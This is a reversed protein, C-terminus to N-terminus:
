LLVDGVSRRPTPPVESGYGMRLVLQPFDTRGFIDRLNTRLTAVEIPQSFFSAWVGAVRAYLLIRELAQGAALWDFWTDTFTWLVALVPSGAALHHGAGAEENDMFTRIKLPGLYSAMDGKGFAYAPVGDRSQRDAPRTWTAIEQRFRENAWLLHDGTAILSAVAYRAEEGRVIQFSTEERRAIGELATLLSLPVARDKFLQRNTRRQVIARFLRQEEETAIGGKELSVRALIGRKEPETPLEVITMYGFHRAAILFNALAAGCSITMERNDPDAVPLARSQDAYLEVVNGEVKFLWPQVNHRSPALVAYNLLFQIHEVTTGEAPFDSEVIDWSPSILQSMSAERGNANGYSIGVLPSQERTPIKNNELKGTGTSDSYFGQRRLLGGNGKMEERFDGSASEQMSRIKFSREVPRDCQPCFDATDPLPLNCYLCSKAM